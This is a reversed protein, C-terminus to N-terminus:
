SGLRRELAAVWRVFDRRNPWDAVIQAALEEGWDRHRAALFARRQADPGAARHRAEFAALAASVRRRRFHLSRSAHRVLTAVALVAAAALASAPSGFALAILGAVATLALAVHLGRGVATWALVPRRHPARRRLSEWALFGGAGAVVLAYGLLTAGLRVPLDDM